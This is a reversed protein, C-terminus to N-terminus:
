EHLSLSCNKSYCAPCRMGGSFGGSHADLHRVPLGYRIDTRAMVTWGSAVHAAVTADRPHKYSNEIGVPYVAINREQRDPAPINSPPLGKVSGDGGHHSVVLTRLGCHKYKDSIKTPVHVYDADGPLLSFRGEPSEILLILGSSNLDSGMARGITLANRNIPQLSNSWLHISGGAALIRSKFKNTFPGTKQDPAVWMASIAKQVNAIDGYTAGAWHDWHWHSLIVPPGETFCWQVGPTPFTGANKAVGGGLDFYLRPYVGPAECAFLFSAAGQGVDVVAVGWDSGFSLFNDSLPFQEDSEILTGITTGSYDKILAPTEEMDAILFSTGDNDALSDLLRIIMGEGSQRSPRLRLTAWRGELSEGNGVPFIRRADHTSVELVAPSVRATLFTQLIGEAAGHPPLESANQQWVEILLTVQEEAPEVASVFAHVVFEQEGCWFTQGFLGRYGTLQMKDNM